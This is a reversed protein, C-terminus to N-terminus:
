FRTIFPYVEHWQMKVYVIYWYAYSIIALIAVYVVRNSKRKIMRGYEAVSILCCYNGYYVIRTIYSNVARGFSLIYNILELFSYQKIEQKNKRFLVEFLPVLFVMLARLVFEIIVIEQGNRSNYVREAYVANILGLNAVLTVIQSFSFIFAYTMCIVIVRKLISISDKRRDVYRVIALLLFGCIASTHFSISVLMTLIPVKKIKQDHLIITLIFFACAISQRMINFSYCYFWGTYLITLALFSMDKRKIYCGLYIPGIVLAQSIGLLVGLETTMKSVIYVLIAYGVDINATLYFAHFTKFSRARDFLPKAYFSVDTGISDARIGALFSMAIVAALLFFKIANKHNNIQMRDAMASLFGVIVFLLIYETM